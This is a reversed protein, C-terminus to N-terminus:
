AWPMPITIRQGLQSATTKRTARVRVRSHSSGIPALSTTMVPAVADETTYRSCISQM